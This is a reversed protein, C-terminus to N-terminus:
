IKVFGPRAPANSVSQRMAAAADHFGHLGVGLQRRDISNRIVRCTTEYVVVASEDCEGVRQSETRPRDWAGDGLPSPTVRWLHTVGKSFDSSIPTAVDSGLARRLTKLVKSQEPGFSEGASSYGRRM